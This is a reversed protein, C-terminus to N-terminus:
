KPPRRVQTTLHWNGRKCRYARFESDHRIAMGDAAALAAGRSHYSVKDCCRDRALLMAVQAATLRRRDHKM